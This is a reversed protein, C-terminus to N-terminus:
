ATGGKMVKGIIEKRWLARPLPVGAVTTRWRRVQLQMGRLDLDRSAFSAIAISCEIDWSMDGSLMEARAEQMSRLMPVIFRAQGLGVKLLGVLRRTGGGTCVCRTLILAAQVCLALPKGSFGSVTGGHADATSPMLVQAAAKLADWSAQM